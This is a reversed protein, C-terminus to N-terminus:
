LQAKAVGSTMQTNTRSCLVDRQELIKRFVDLTQKRSEYCRSAERSAAIRLLWCFVEDAVMEVCRTGEGVSRMEGKLSRTNVKSGNGILTHSAEVDLNCPFPPRCTELELAEARFGGKGQLGM